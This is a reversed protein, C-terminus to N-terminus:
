EQIRGSWNVLTDGKFYLTIDLFKKNPQTTTNSYWGSSSSGRDGLSLYYNWSELNGENTKTTPEGFIRIMYEKDAYNLLPQLIEEYEKLANDAQKQYCGAVSCLSLLSICIIAIRM